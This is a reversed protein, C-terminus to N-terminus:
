ERVQSRVHEKAKGKSRLRRQRVAAKKARQVPVKGNKSHPRHHRKWHNVWHEADYVSRECLHVQVKCFRCFVTRQDFWLIADTMEFWMWRLVQKLTTLPVDTRSCM